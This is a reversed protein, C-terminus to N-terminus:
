EGIGTEVTEVVRPDERNVLKEAMARPQPSTSQPALKEYVSVVQEGVIRWTFHAKVLSTANEAIKAALKHDSSLQRILRELAAADVGNFLLCNVGDELLGDYVNLRAAIAPLGYSMAEFLSISLGEALSPFVFCAAGRYYNSLAVDNVYGAFFVKEEVDLRRSLGTLKLKSPGDGVVIVRVDPLGKAAEVLVEVNKRPVLQGVFLAYGNGDTTGTKRAESPPMWVANPIFVARSEPTGFRKAEDRLAPSVAITKHVCRLCPVDILLYALKRFARESVGSYSVIWPSADHMTYVVPVRRGVTKELVLASLAGHCHVIDFRNPNTGFVRLAVMASLINGFFHKMVWGFFSTRPPIVGRSLPVSHVVVNSNFEAGKSVKGVFHVEHGVSALYNALQYGHKEAGGGSSEPPV